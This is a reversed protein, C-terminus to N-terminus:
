IPSFFFFLLVFLSVHGSVFCGTTFVMFGCLSLIM